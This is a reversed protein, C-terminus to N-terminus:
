APTCCGKKPTLTLTRAKQCKKGKNQSREIAYITASTTTYWLRGTQHQAEGLSIPSNQFSPIETQFIQFGRSRTFSRSPCSVGSAVQSSTRPCNSSASRVCGHLATCTSLHPFIHSSTSLVRPGDVLYRDLPRSICDYLMYDWSVSQIPLIWFMKLPYSHRCAPTRSVTSRINACIEKRCIPKCLALNQLFCSAKIDSM